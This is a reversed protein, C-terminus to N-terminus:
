QAFPIEEAQGELDRGIGAQGGCLRDDAVTRCAFGDGLQLGTQLLQAVVGVRDVTLETLAGAIGHGGELFEM